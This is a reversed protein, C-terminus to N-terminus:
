FNYEIGAALYKKDPNTDFNLNTYFTYLKTIKGLKYDAGITTGKNADGSDFDAVQYQGKFIVKGMKYQASVMAGDMKDGTVLKEQMQLMAGLVFGVVNGQITARTVDYGNVKSDTAISAFIKSKKLKKDGYSVALSYVDSAEISDSAIYTAGLQFGNMQPSKYTVTDSMRNEGKWLYKIDGNLNNFVDTKGQAQKLMTVNKGILVEGFGGKLGIYQNRDTISNGKPSDGAMYVQYELQYIIKIGGDLKYEGKFGIRSANSKIETFSGTGEDSSQLSLNAQGYIEVNAAMSPLAFTTCIALAMTYKMLKM